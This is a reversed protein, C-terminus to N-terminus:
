QDNRDQSGDPSAEQREAGDAVAEGGLHREPGSGYQGALIDTVLYAAAPSIAQSGAPEPAQWVIRGDATRVDLIM